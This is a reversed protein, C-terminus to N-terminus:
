REGALRAACPRPMPPSLAAAIFGLAILARRFTQSM